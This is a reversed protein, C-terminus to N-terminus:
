FQNALVEGIHQSVTDKSTRTTLRYMQFLLSPFLLYVYSVLSAYNLLLKFPLRGCFSILESVQAQTNPELRLLCGVQITKTHIIGACVYNQPIYM